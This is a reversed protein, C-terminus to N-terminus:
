EQKKLDALHEEVGQIESRLETIYEELSTISEEKSTFQRFGTGHCCGTTHHSLQGHGHHASHEYGHQCMRHM